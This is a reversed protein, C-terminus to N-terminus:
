DGGFLESLTLSKVAEGGNYMMGLVASIENDPTGLVIYINDREIEHAKCASSFYNSMFNSVHVSKQMMDVKKRLIDKTFDLAIAEGDEGKKTQGKVTYMYEPTFEENKTHLIFAIDQPEVKEEEAFSTLAKTIIKKVIGEIM